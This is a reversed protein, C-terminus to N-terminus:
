SSVETSVHLLLELLDPTDKTKLYRSKWYSFGEDLDKLTNTRHNYPDINRQRSGSMEWNETLTSVFLRLSSARRIKLHCQYGLSFTSQYTPCLEPTKPLPSASITHTGMRACTHMFFPGLEPYLSLDKQGPVFNKVRSLWNRLFLPSLALRTSHIRFQLKQM